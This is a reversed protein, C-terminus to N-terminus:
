QGTRTVDVQAKMIRGENEGWAAGRMRDGALRLDFRLRGGEPPRVEFTIREGEVKGDQITWQVLKDPGATGTISAGSEKHKMYCRDAQTEGNTGTM